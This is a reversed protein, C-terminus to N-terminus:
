TLTKFYIRKRKHQRADYYRWFNQVKVNEELEANSEAYKIGKELCKKTLDTMFLANVGKSQYEPLVGVLLVDMREPKKMAKLIPIFGFPLLKGKAKQFARSLSPMSIQFGIVKDNKDLVITTYEPQIFSFYKSVFHNVQKETLPVFGFLPSYAANIVDFVQDAYPLLDKKSKIKLTKLKHRKIIVDRIRVAKEPIKDPTKVEYEVYDTEKKYDLDEMHEPYYPYNYTSAFTPLEDFGHVLMGQQEFTSFGMPGNMGEMGKSRAWNEIDQLLAKSVERDDTFDLWCFRAWKKKWYKVFRQNIIGAIRGVIEGDKYALVYKAECHDFAPNQDPRLTEIEGKILPPIWYENNKYLSSPFRVFKKLDKPNRAERLKLSM